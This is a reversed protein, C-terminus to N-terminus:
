EIGGSIIAGFPLTRGRIIAGPEALPAPAGDDVDDGQMHVSAEVVDGRVDSCSSENWPPENWSPDNTEAEGRSSPDSVAFVVRGVRLPKM